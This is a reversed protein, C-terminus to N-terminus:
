KVIEKTAANYLTIGGLRHGCPVLYTCHGVKNADTYDAGCHPCKGAELATDFALFAAKMAAKNEDLQEQTPLTRHECTAEPREAHRASFPPLCPTRYTPQAGEDGPERVNDPDPKLDAIPAALHRIDPAIPDPTSM